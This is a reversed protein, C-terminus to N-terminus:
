SCWHLQLTCHLICNLFLSQSIDQPWKKYRLQPELSTERESSLRRCMLKLIAREGTAMSSFLSKAFGLDSHSMCASCAPILPLIASFSHVAKFHKHRNIIDTSSHKVYALSTHSKFLGQVPALVHAKEWGVRSIPQQQLLGWLHPSGHVRMWSETTDSISTM